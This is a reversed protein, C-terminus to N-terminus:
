ETEEWLDSNKIKGDKDLLEIPKNLKKCRGSGSIVGYKGTLQDFTQPAMRLQVCEVGNKVVKYAGGDLPGSPHKTNKHKQPAPAVFTDSFGSLAADNTNSARATEAEIFKRISAATITPTVDVVVEQEVENQVQPEQPTQELKPKQTNNQIPTPIPTPIPNQIVEQQAEKEAMETDEAKTEIKEVVSEINVYLNEREPPLRLYSNFNAPLLMLWIHFLAASLSAVVMRNNSLITSEIGVWKDDQSVLM